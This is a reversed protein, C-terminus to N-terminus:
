GYSHPLYIFIRQSLSAYTLVRYGSRINTIFGFLVGWGKEPKGM